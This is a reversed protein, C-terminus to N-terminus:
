EPIGKRDEVRVPTDQITRIEMLIRALKAAMWQHMRTPEDGNVLFPKYGYSTILQYLEPDELRCLVTPNAIKYGNLHLIPM